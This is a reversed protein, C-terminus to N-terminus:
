RKGKYSEIVSKVDACVASRAQILNKNIDVWDDHSIKDSCFKDEVLCM